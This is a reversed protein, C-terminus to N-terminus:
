CAVSFEAGHQRDQVIKDTKHNSSIALSLTALIGTGVLWLIFLEAAIEGQHSAAMEYALLFSVACLMQLFCVFPCDAIRKSVATILDSM